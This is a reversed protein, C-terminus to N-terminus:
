SPWKKKSINLTSDLNWFNLFVPSFIKRKQSLQMQFHQQLNGRNLLYYKEDATGPQCVIRLNQMHNLSFKGVSNRECPNIFTTFTRDNLNWRLKPGNVMNSTSPDESVLSKLCKDLRTKRLGYTWFYMLESPWRNKSFRWFHICISFISFFFPCFTKRKQSLQKKVLQLLNGRKLLSDKDDATM